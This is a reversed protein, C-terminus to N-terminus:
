GPCISHDLWLAPSASAAAECGAASGARTAGTPMASAPKWCGSRLTSLPTTILWPVIIPGLNGRLVLAGALVPLMGLYM